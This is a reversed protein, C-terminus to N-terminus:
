KSSNSSVEDRLIRQQSSNSMVETDDVRPLTDKANKQAEVHEDISFERRQMISGSSTERSHDFPGLRFVQAGTDDECAGMTARKNQRQTRNMVDQSSANALNGQELNWLGYLTSANVVITATFLETSAWTTRSVQSDKNIANIPLRIITIAIIFIGLTFLAYLRLKRRWSTQLSFFLPIPVALLM